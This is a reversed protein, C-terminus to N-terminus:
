RGYLVSIENEFLPQWGSGGNQLVRALPWQPEILILRVDWEDLKAQWGEEASVISLWESLHDDSYLDTRGDVFVPYNRLAWILYGGWNYSNFIPGAPHEFGIFDVAALPLKQGYVQRNADEPYILVARIFVVLVLLAFIVINLPAQWKAPQTKKISIGLKRRAEELLPAAHRTLIVPAVLAFLAINRAALLAMLAFVSVLLLDSLVIRKRSVGMVGFTLLLLGAFPLVELEHFNPSQWEQIYDRLVGISVTQFPYSLLSPGSPNVCVALLLGLGSLLLAGFPGRLLDRMAARTLRLGRRPSWQEGLWRWSQDILYIALLIFAVAFGPHSNVWLIMVIPLWILRNKRGRRYDELIWLFAASLVFSVMYPRAAWYVGSATAALILTFARLFPGGSLTLYIFFFALTVLAAVWINLAGPGLRDYLFFLKLETLWASSPYRWPEGVRTYSFPDAKPITRQEAILEGTRMQWWTDTDLSVRLAMAFISLFTVAIVLHRMSM